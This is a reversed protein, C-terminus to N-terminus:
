RTLSHFDQYEQKECSCQPGNRTIIPAANESITIMSCALNRTLTCGGATEFMRMTQFNFYDLFHSYM